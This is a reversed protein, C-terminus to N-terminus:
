KRLIVAFLVVAVGVALLAWPLWDGLDNRNYNGLTTTASSKGLSSDGGSGGSFFDMPM